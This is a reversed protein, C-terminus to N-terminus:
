SENARRSRVFRLGSYDGRGTRLPKSLTMIDSLEDDSGTVTWEDDLAELVVGVLLSIMMFGFNARAPCQLPTAGFALFGEREAQGEISHWRAPWFTLLGSPDQPCTFDENSRQCAEIDAAFRVKTTSKPIGFYADAAHIDFDRYIRRTPPYLRLAEKAIMQLTETFGEGVLKDDMKRSLQKSTPSILFSRFHDLWLNRREDGASNHSRERVEILCLMSVRWMTEYAPLIFNMPSDEPPSMPALVRFVQQWVRSLFDSLPLMTAIDSLPEKRPVIAKSMWSTINLLGSTSQAETSNDDKSSLWSANIAAAFGRLIDLSSTVSQVREPREWKILHLVAKLTLAQFLPVISISVQSDHNHQSHVNIEDTIHQRTIQRILLWQEKDLTIMRTASKKFSECLGQNTSTFANRIGFWRSLRQNPSARSQLLAKGAIKVRQGNLIARCQAPTQLVTTHIRGHRKFTSNLAFLVLAGAALSTALIGISLAMNVHM